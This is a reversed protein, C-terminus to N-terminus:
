DFQPGSRSGASGLAGIELWLASASGWFGSTPSAEDLADAGRVVIYYRGPLLGTTDLDLSVWESTEDFAGDDAQMPLGADVGDGPAPLNGASLGAPRALQVQASAVADKGGRVDTVRARVRVREGAKARATSLSLRTAEPGHIRQYPRDALGLMMDIADHNQRLVGPLESCPAVFSNGQLEIVYAPIGLEGYGWDRTNGSVPYLSYKTEYGNHLSYRAGIAWLGLDNASKAETWGWPVLTSGPMTANHFNIMLGTTDISAPDDDGEGRQDAFITRLYNAYHQIEPESGPETGRYTADCPNKSHGEADWKFVHNRNLDIGYAGGSNSSWTCGESQDTNANKRWMWPGVQYTDAGMEVLLRGDPNSSIGVYLERHDLLYTIQPDVGYGKVIREITAKMLEITPIERAHIGGDIWFRGEKPSISGEATIRAVLIDRGALADGGPTTCGGQTKCWSDGIDFIEMLEGNQGAFDELWAYVEDLRNYCGPWPTLPDAQELRDIVTVEFGLGALRRADESSVTVQQTGANIAEEWAPLADALREADAIPVASLDLVVPSASPLGVTEPATSSAQAAVGSPASATASVAFIGALLATPALRGLATWRETWRGTSKRASTDM